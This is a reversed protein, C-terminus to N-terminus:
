QEAPANSGKAQLVAPYKMIASFDANQYAPTRKAREILLDRSASVIPPTKKRLNRMQAKAIAEIIAEFIMSLIGVGCVSFFIGGLITSGIGSKDM